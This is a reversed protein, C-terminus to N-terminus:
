EAWPRYLIAMHEAPGKHAGGTCINLLQQSLSLPMFPCLGAEYKDFLPTLNRIARGSSSAAKANISCTLGQCRINRMSAWGMLM